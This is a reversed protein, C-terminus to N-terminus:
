SSRGTAGGAPTRSHQRSEGAVECRGGALIEHAGGHCDQCNAAPAGRAKVPKAHFSHSYAEQADAHCQACTVKKPPTDHVLSKVDTHCDV